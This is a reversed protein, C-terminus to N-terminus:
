SGELALIFPTLVAFLSRDFTVGTITGKERNISLDEGIRFDGLEDTATFYVLGFNPTASNASDFVVENEKIPIGGNQPIATFMNTGSGVYEFTHGSATILSRQHFNVKQYRKMQRNLPPSVSIEYAGTEPLISYYFFAAGYETASDFMSQRRQPAGIVILDGSGGVTNNWHSTSGYLDPRTVADTPRKPELVTRRTWDKAAREVVVVGCSDSTRFPNMGVTVLDGRFNIDVNSGYRARDKFYTPADVIAETVWQGQDFRFFEAQGQETVFTQVFTDIEGPAVWVSNAFRCSDKGISTIEYEGDNSTSGLITLRSGVSFEGAFNVDSDTSVIRTAVDNLFSVNRLNQKRQLYDPAGQLVNTYANQFYGRPAKLDSIVMYDATPNLKIRAEREQYFNMTPTIVQALIFLNDINRQYYYAKDSPGSWYVVLDSGTQDLSVSPLNVLIGEGSPYEIRQQQTWVNSAPNQRIYIYVAGQGGDAQDNRTSIALTLGDESMDISEGFYRDRDNVGDLAIYADQAWSTGTRRFTYVAGNNRTSNLSSTQHQSPAAIAAYNGTENLITNYGFQEDGGFVGFPPTPQLQAEFVFQPAGGIIDKKYVEAKGTDHTPESVILYNDDRSMTTSYGFQEGGIAPTIAPTFETEDSNRTIGWDQTIEESVDTVTYYVEDSDFKIADNFNPKKFDGVNLTYDASDRTIISNVRVVDGNIDYTAHLTGDYLSPSGGRSVLGYKGFSSNSNTLSCQGGTETLVSTTTSVTFLSVLQAYGRNLLHVGIGGANFQTFADLVMSRLGSVKSGDIRLGTGSSTLSTCNQVYPSQTIFPGAGPSDVRPDYSLVAAGDQHDRFTCEKIYVGNDAWFIDQSPHKPRITVARLADGIISTKAPLKIPNNIVYDGSKIFITSDTGQNSAVASSSRIITLRQTENNDFATLANYLDNVVVKYGLAILDPFQLANYGPLLGTPVNYQYIKGRTSNNDFFEGLTYTGDASQEVAKVIIDLLGVVRNTIQVGYQTLYGNLITKLQNYAAITADLENQGLLDVYGNGFISFYARQATYTATNCGYKIDYTLADLIYGVDRRCTAQNYSYAPFIQNAYAVTKTVLSDDANDIILSDGTFTLPTNPIALPNTANISSNIITILSNIRAKEADTDVFEAIIKKMENYADITAATEGDGLLKTYVDVAGDLNQDPGFLDIGSWYSRAVTETAYNVDFMVDHSLADVILGVDRMCADYNYELTDYNDEIFTVVRQMIKRRNTQLAQNAVRKEFAIDATGIFNLPDGDYDGYDSTESLLSIIEDFRQTIFIKSSDAIALENVVTDRLYELTRVTYTLQDTQVKNAVVRRYSLGATTSNYNTNLQLDLCIAKLILYTDRACKEDDFSNVPNNDNIFDITQNQIDLKNNRIINIETDNLPAYQIEEAPVVEADDDAIILSTIIEILELIRIQEAETTVYSSIQNALYSYASLTADIEGKDNGLQQITGAYYSLAANRMAINGGYLIDHSLADIILGVDRECKTSNYDLTPFATNIHTTVASILTARNNQLAIKANNREVTQYTVAPNYVFEPTNIPIDSLVDTVYKFLDTIKADNTVGTLAILQDRAFNIADITPQLQNSLVKSANARTYANAATISNYNTDLILDRWVADIILGVDRFCKAQDYVPNFFRDNSYAVVDDQIQLKAVQIAQRQTNATIGTFNPEEQEPLSDVGGAVIVGNIIDILESARTQEDTTSVYSNIISKLQNYAAVTVEEQDLGLQSESKSFYARANTITATNGGYKIDHTL